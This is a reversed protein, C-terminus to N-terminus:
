YLNENHVVDIHSKLNGKTSFNAQCVTCNIPTELDKKMPYNINYSNQNNESDNDQGMDENEEKVRIGIKHVFSMHIDYVAKKDFQLFCIECFFDKLTYVRM